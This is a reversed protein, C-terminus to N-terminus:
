PTAAAPGTSAAPGAYRSLDPATSRGSSLMASLRRLAPRSAVALAGHLLRIGLASRPNMLKPAIRPVGQAGEVMPRMAREYAALAGALDGGGRCLEGALVYAGTVSLTTGVGALPTACWAADGTLVVRGRSWRPMRVQRLVDVYFDETDDLAALVRPAQWGVGAFRERLYAKQRDADWDQVEKPAGRDMLMARTTGHCDPRLSVGRGDPVNFWRWLADDEPARSVTLYAITLGMWRPVNEGPFVLDRTTSGVGEAVIVLDYRAVEGSAFTVAVAEAADEVREVRDGFRFAARARAPEYLLRALDGRLIELEATPGDGGSADLDFRAAIRGRADIWATGAEGTGGDLAARELGMRRLVERGVGRLDVNQGGDRFAPAREVVTVDFGQRGLWWAVTTGAVSAGTILIRRDM